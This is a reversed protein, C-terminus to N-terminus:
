FVPQTDDSEYYVNLITFQSLDIGLRDKLQLTLTSLPGQEAHHVCVFAHEAHHMEKYNLAINFKRVTSERTQHTDPLWNGIRRDEHENDWNGDFEGEFPNRRVTIGQVRSMTVLRRWLRVYVGCPVTTVYDGKNWM